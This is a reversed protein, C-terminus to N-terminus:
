IEPLRTPYQAEISAIVQAVTQERGDRFTRLKQEFRANVFYRLRWFDLLRVSKGADGMEHGPYAMMALAGSYWQEIERSFRVLAEIDGQPVLVRAAAYPVGIAGLSAESIAQVGGFRAPGAVERFGRVTEWGVLLFGYDRGGSADLAQWRAQFEGLGAIYTEWREPGAPLVVARTTLATLETKTSAHM